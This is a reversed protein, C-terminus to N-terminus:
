REVRVMEINLAADEGPPVRFTAFGTKPDRYTWIRYKDALISITLDTNAPVMLSLDSGVMITFNKVYNDGRRVTVLAKDILTKTSLDRLTGHIRAAKHAIPEFSTPPPDPAVDVLQVACSFLDLRCDCYNQREDTAVIAYRGVPVNLEFRGDVNTKGSTVTFPAIKSQVVVNILPVPRGLDDRAIGDIRGTHTTDKPSQYHINAFVFTLLYIHLIFKCM